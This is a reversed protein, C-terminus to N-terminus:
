SRAKINGICVTHTTKDNRELFQQWKRLAANLSVYSSDHCKLCYAMVVQFGFYFM